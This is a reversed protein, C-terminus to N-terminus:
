MSRWTSCWSCPSHLRPSTILENNVNSASNVLGLDALDGAVSAISKGKTDEKILVSATRTYVPNTCLLYFVAASMCLVLSLLFWPWNGLCINFLDKLNIQSENRRIPAQRIILPTQTQPSEM